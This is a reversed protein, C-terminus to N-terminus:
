TRIFVQTVALQQTKKLAPSSCTQLVGVTHETGVLRISCAATWLEHLWLVRTELLIEQIGGQM